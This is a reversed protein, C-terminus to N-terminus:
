PDKWMPKSMMGSLTGINLVPNENTGSTAQLELLLDEKLAALAPHEIGSISDNVKFGSMVQALRRAQDRMAQAAAASQEVLAANQQTTEEIRHIAQGVHEIGARQEASASAIQAIMETVQTVSHVVEGITEGARNVLRSGESVKDVSDSILGKIEKAANASRQALTRVEAAVVAFGRGQEGARAAEVAANLALINTQFAISDIVSIIEVIKRASADIAGMTHVVETVASGGEQAIRSTDSALRSAEQANRANNQVTITLEEMSSATQELSDVQQETRSSLDMNGSAIEMSVAAIQETSQRVEAVVGRLKSNMEFLAHLLMGIEDQRSTDVVSTLDGDAVRRALDAAHQVPHVINRTLSWAFYIGMAVALGGASLLIIVSAQFVQNSEDAIADAQETYHKLLQRLTGQYSAQAKELHSEIMQEVEQIKGVSKLKFIKDSVDQYEASAGSVADLMRQEAEDNSLKRAAEAHQQIVINGEELQKAFYEGLELSDSRAIAIVRTANLAVASHWEAVLRQRALKDNVLTKAMGDVSYLRWISLLSVFMMVGLIAAFSLVVRTGVRNKWSLTM